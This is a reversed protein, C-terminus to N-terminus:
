LSLLVCFGRVRDHVGRTPLVPRTGGPFAHPSVTITTAHVSGASAGRGNAAADSSFLCPEGLAVYVLANPPARGNLVAPMCGSCVNIADRADCGNPALHM